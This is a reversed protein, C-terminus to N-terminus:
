TIYTPYQLNYLNFNYNGSAVDLSGSSTYNTKIRAKKHKTNHWMIYVPHCSFCFWHCPVCFTICFYLVHGTGLRSLGCAILTFPFVQYQGKTKKKNASSLRSTVNKPWYYLDNECSTVAAMNTCLVIFRRGHKHAFFDQPFQVRKM